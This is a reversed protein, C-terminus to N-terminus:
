FPLKDYFDIYHLSGAEMKRMLGQLHKMEAECKEREGRKFKKFKTPENDSYGMDGGHIVVWDGGKKIKGELGGIMSRLAHIGLKDFTRTLIAKEELTLEQTTLARLINYKDQSEETTAYEVNEREHARKLAEKYDM